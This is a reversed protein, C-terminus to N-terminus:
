PIKRAGPGALGTMLTECPTTNLPHLATVVAGTMSAPEGRSRITRKHAVAEM